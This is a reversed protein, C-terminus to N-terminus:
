PWWPSQRQGNAVEWAASLARKGGESLSRSKPLEARYIYAHLVLATALDKGRHEEHVILSNSIYFGAEDGDADVVAVDGSSDLLVLTYEGHRKLPRFQFGTGPPVLLGRELFVPPSDTNGSHCLFQELTIKSLDM